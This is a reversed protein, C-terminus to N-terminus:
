RYTILRKDATEFHAHENITSLTLGRGGVIIKTISANALTASLMLTRVDDLGLLKRIVVSIAGGSTFVVASQSKGLRAVLRTLAGEVRACFVPWSERYEAHYQGGVWRAMAREFIEQFARRPDAHSLMDTAVATQERYREDLGGLMDNHDYEDWGLDVEWAVPLSQATLCETATQHHRRMGGCLTVEAHVHRAALASGLVRGQEHGLPSLEDYDAAAFSAQGHRVLYIAGM